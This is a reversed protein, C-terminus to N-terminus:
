QLPEPPQEPSSFPRYVQDNRFFDRNPLSERFSSFDGEISADRIVTPRLLVVLESKASSNSRTNFVEGLFPIDGFGPLRGDRNDLRDEMLGGLVAIDGSEVRMMSEIERMRIQPVLNKINNRALEPNPDQKLEAISSISPRVSLTVTGNDSIQATLSMFFGISVSQPTTTTTVTANTNTNGPVVDQKVNFYVFDESVKLTATQNNLVALKPSSLVKVTGFARLLEVTTLLNLPNIQRYKIVYPTVASPVNTTLTPKSISYDTGSTLRSWEIGQQYGDSLTVEIITAEILVQRRAGSMVRDLFEQVKEHQRATARVTIVGGEPNAIVSAAERFTMRKVVSAGTNQLTAPNPSGALSQAMQSVVRAATSTPAPTGTGTTTQAATQETVTETSGEPFIKDTEHLLEKLNKELTEWFRNRSKNDIQIRSTNGTSAAGGGGATLSSTSIQTSTSVTGTVDRALNVYDVKYNKLYPSDPMVVLNPGEMEFRMDVQKAIRTLLQPLTQDIANLTVLGTLGPHIDVNLRADRALAFLLDHVRVNNVVVSYTETKGIIRPKPLLVSQQVPQPIAGQVKPVSAAQLHGTSPGKSLTSPTCACLLM